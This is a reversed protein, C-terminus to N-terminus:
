QIYVKRKSRMTIVISLSTAFALLMWYWAISSIMGTRQYIWLAFAATPSGLLQSGLAYGFSIVTYRAEIPVLKQAWAHFPAFFAVGFLVFAIRVIIVSGLSGNLFFFLPLALILGALATTLMLKERSAKSAVWGFFPLACFDFIVLYTNMKMLEVKSIKSILPIFGNMLVFAISYAAHAFGSFLTILFLNKRNAFLREKLNEIPNSLKISYPGLGRRIILGFFATLCGFIYLLRWGPDIIFNKSIIYVGFSALLHGGMASAGYLGSFLDHRKEEANELIFIAGGMTEGAAFFNQLAKGLCFFLPAFFGAQPYTPTLAIAGSVLAMGLLTLFLSRGRGYADGIYGFFLAGLPRALMGLPLIAYTYILATIPDKEPFILPALFPSLFGFLATDYHDFLNGLCASWFQKRSTM